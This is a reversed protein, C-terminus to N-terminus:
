RRSAATGCFRGSRLAGNAIPAARQADRQIEVAGQNLAGGVYRGVLESKALADSLGKADIRVTLSM